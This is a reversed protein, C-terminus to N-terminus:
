KLHLRPPLQAHTLDLDDRRVPIRVEVTNAPSPYNQSFTVRLTGDSFSLVRTADAYSRLLAAQKPDDCTVVAARVIRDESAYSLRGVVNPQKLRADSTDDGPVELGAYRTTVTERSISFSVLPVYTDFLHEGSGLKYVSWWQTEELGRSVIFLANDLSRGDTGAVTLTYLPKQRPDAGLRWAELTVTAEVGIDGLFQKSHTTKRLLLREGAPRGPVQTGTVEHSSNRIEVSESGDAAFRLDFTSPSETHIPPRPQAYALPALWLLTLAPTHSRM